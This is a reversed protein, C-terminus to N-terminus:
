KLQYKIPIFRDPRVDLELNIVKLQKKLLRDWTEIQWEYEEPNGKRRLLFIHENDSSVDFIDDIRSLLDGNLNYLYASYQLGYLPHGKGHIIDLDKCLLTDNDLVYIPAGYGILKSKDKQYDIMYTLTRPTGSMEEFESISRVFIFVLSKTPHLTIGWVFGNGSILTCGLIKSLEKEDYYKEIKNEKINFVQLSFPSISYGAIRSASSDISRYNLQTFFESPLTIQDLSINNIPDWFFISKNRKDISALANLRPVWCLRIEPLYGNVVKGEAVIYDKETTEFLFMSKDQKRFSSVCSVISIVSLLFILKTLEKKM